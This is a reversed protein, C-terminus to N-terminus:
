KPLPRYIKVSGELLLNLNLEGPGVTRRGNANQELVQYRNPGLVRRIIQTHHAAAGNRFKCDELQVVDGPLVKQGVTVERGWIYTKGSYQIPKANVSKFAEVALHACEGGDVKKSLNAECFDIIDKNLPGMSVMAAERWAVLEPKRHGEEAERWFKLPPTKPVKTTAAAWYYCAARMEVDASALGDLAALAVEDSPLTPLAKRVIARIDASKHRLLPIVEAATGGMRILSDVSNKFEAATTEESALKALFDVRSKTGIDKLQKLFDNVSDKPGSRGLIKGKADLIAVATPVDVNLAQAFKATPQVTLPLFWKLRERIRHDSLLEINEGKRPAVTVVVPIGTQQSQRAISAFDRLFVDVVSEEMDARSTPAASLLCSAVVSLVLVLRQM